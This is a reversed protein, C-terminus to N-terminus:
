KIFNYDYKSGNQTTIKKPYFQVLITNTQFLFNCYIIIM